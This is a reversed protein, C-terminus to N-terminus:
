RINEPTLYRLVMEILDPRWESILYYGSLVEELPYDQMFSMFINLESHYQPRFHM